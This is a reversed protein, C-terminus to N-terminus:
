TEVLGTLAGALEGNATRGVIFVSINVEGFRFVKLDTLQSKLFDRLGSMKQAQEVSVSDSPDSSTCHSNLWKDAEKEEVAL